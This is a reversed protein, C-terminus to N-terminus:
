HNGQLKRAAQQPLIKNLLYGGKSSNIGTLVARNYDGDLFRNSNDASYSSYSGKKGYNENSGHKKDRLDDINLPIAM